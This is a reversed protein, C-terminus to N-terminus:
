TRKMVTTTACMGCRQAQLLLATCHLASFCYPCTNPLLLVTTDDVASYQLQLSSCALVLVATLCQSPLPDLVGLNRACCHAVLVCAHISIHIHMICFILTYAYYTVGYIIYDLLSEGGDASAPVWKTIKGGAVWNGWFNRRVTKGVYPSGHARWQLEAEEEHEDASAAAAAALVDIASSRSSSSSSGGAGRKRKASSGSGSGSGSGGGSASSSSGSSSRRYSSSCISSSGGALHTERAACFQRALRRVRLALTEANAYQAKDEATRYLSEELRTV